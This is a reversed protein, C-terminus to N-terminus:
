LIPKNFTTVVVLWNVTTQVEDPASVFYDKNYSPPFSTKNRRLMIKVVKLSPNDLIEPTSVGLASIFGTTQLQCLIAMSPLVRKIHQINILHDAM